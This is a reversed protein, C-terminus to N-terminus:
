LISKNYDKNQRLPYKFNSKHNRGMNIATVTSKARNTLDAIKQYTLDTTILLEQIKKATKANALKSNSKVCLPYTENKDFFYKGTNINSIFGKSKIGFQQQIQDYSVNNKILKKIEQIEKASFHSRSHKKLPYDLKDNKFNLGCNINLLYSRNLQPYIKEIEDFEEDNILRNQIDIIEEPKFLSSKKIREEFSLQKPSFGQGGQSVNYGNQTTLTQFYSIFYKEREDIFTQNENESIEELIEYNFNEIGYKRIANHFPVNYDNSKPNNATSKHANYRKQFDKTQGIYSKNNIKNTFKYIVVM